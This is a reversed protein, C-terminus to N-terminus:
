EACIGFECLCECLYLNVLVHLVDPMFDNGPDEPISFHIRAVPGTIEDRSIRLRCSANDSHGQDSILLDSKGCPGAFM